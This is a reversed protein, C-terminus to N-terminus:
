RKRLLSSHNSCSSVPFQGHFEAETSAKQQLKPFKKAKLYKSGAPKWFDGQTLLLGGAGAM